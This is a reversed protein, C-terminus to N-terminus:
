DKSDSDACLEEHQYLAFIGGQQGREMSLFTSSKGTKASPSQTTRVLKRTSAQSGQGEDVNVPTVLHGLNHPPNERTSWPSRFVFKVPKTKAPIMPRPKVMPSGESSTAEQGRKSM